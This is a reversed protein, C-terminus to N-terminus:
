HASRNREYLATLDPFKYDILDLCEDTLISKWQGPVPNRIHQSQASNRNASYRQAFFSIAKTQIANLDHHEALRRFADVENGVIDNYDLVLLDSQSQRLWSSLAKFHNHRFELELLLGEALDCRSLLESFSLESERVAEPISGNVVSYDSSSPNKIRTWPEVGKRHYYYGSVILDRPDRIFLSCTNSDGFLNEIEVKKLYHNNLSVMNYQNAFNEFESRKSNFHRYGNKRLRMNNLVRNLVLSSYKTLCKHFSFHLRM